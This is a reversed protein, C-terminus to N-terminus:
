FTCKTSIHFQKMIILVALVNANLQLTQTDWVHGTEHAAVFASSFGDEFVLVCSRHLHCMGTVPAYGASFFWFNKPWTYSTQAHWAPPILLLIQLILPLKLLLVRGALSPFSVGYWTPLTVQLGKRKLPLILAKFPLPALSWGSWTSPTVIAVQLILSSLLQQTKCASPDSGRGPWTSPTFVLVQLILPPILLPVKCALPYSHKGPWTSSTVLPVQWIIRLPKCVLPVM